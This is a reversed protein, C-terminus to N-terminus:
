KDTKVKVSVDLGKRVSQTVVCFDEYLDLCRRLKADDPAGIQPDIEVDIKGIRLRGKENRTHTVTVDTHLGQIDLRLKRACFLLSASLCGGVATALLRAPDPGKDQGLPSPEDMILEPIQLPDFTVRFEYDQISQISVSFRKHEESKIPESESKENM